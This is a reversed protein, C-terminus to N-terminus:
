SSKTKGIFSKAGRIGGDIGIIVDYIRRHVEHDDKKNVIDGVSPTM